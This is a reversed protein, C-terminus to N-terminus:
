HKENLVLQQENYCPYTHTHTHARARAHTYTHDEYIM